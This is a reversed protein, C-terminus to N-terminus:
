CAGGLKSKLPCHPSCQDDSVCQAMSGGMQIYIYIYVAFQRRFYSHKKEYLAQFIVQQRGKVFRSGKAAAKPFVFLNLTWLLWSVDVWHGLWDSFLQSISELIFAKM